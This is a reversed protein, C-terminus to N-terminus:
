QYRIHRKSYMEDPIYIETIKAIVADAYFAAVEETFYGQYKRLLYLAKEYSKSDTFILSMTPEVLANNMSYGTFENTTFWLKVGYLHQPPAYKDYHYMEVRIIKLDHREMFKVFESFSKGAIGCTDKEMVKFRSVLSDFVVKYEEDTKVTQANGIQVFLCLIIILKVTRKM